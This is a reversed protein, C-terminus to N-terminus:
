GQLLYLLNLYNGNNPIQGNLDAKVSLLGIDEEEKVTDYDKLMDPIANKTPGNKRQRKIICFALLLIIAIIPIVVGLIIGLAIPKDASEPEFYSLYGLKKRYNGLKIQSIFCFYESKPGKLWYDKLPTNPCFQKM